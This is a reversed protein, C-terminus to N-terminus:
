DPTCLALVEAPERLVADPRAALLAPEDTQGWLAAVAAVGASQASLLDIVADGIMMTEGPEV